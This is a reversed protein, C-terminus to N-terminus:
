QDGLSMEVGDCPAPEHSLVLDQKEADTACDPLRGLESDKMGTHFDVDRHRMDQVMRLACRVCGDISTVNRLM